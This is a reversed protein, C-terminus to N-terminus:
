SRRRPTRKSARAMLREAEIGREHNLSFVAHTGAVTEAHLFGKTVLWELADRTEDINHHITEQLLRWRAVGELSDAARPHRMFYTLIEKAAKPMTQM